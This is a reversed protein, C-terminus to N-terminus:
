DSVDASDTILGFKKAKRLLTTRHIELAQAARNMTGHRALSKSIIDREFRSVLTELSKSQELVPQLKERIYEPIDSGTIEEDPTLVMLQEITNELERINGPWNYAMLIELAESSLKKVLNHTEGFRKVFKTILPLLDSTRERLPPIYVPVVNLRYYLDERFRNEKVMAKLDKNTATIFRVSVTQVQSGGVRIFEKEQLLRLLKVQMPLTLEGIEDLFLSGGNALEVLGPKGGKKAGTFAGTEYGFLESELLNEPLAGCNIKIFPGESRPSNRHILKAIIEKGVGSEGMILVTSDVKSVRHIKQLIDKMQPSVAVIDNLKLQQSRLHQLETYYRESLDKTTELQNKLHNLETIDRVNTVVCIIKGESNFIPNGTVIVYKGTKKIEQMITAPQRKELVILTVSQNFYGAQVLDKMNRGIVESAMVGTIREYAKNVRTTNGQGDTVYIGDYSSAIIADLESSLEKVSTLERSISDLVSVDQFVGVAGVIDGNNLIPTRNTIFTRDGILMKQGVQPVGTKLVEILETNELIKKINKGLVNSKNEGLFRIAAENCITIIGDKNIAIVGNYTADLMTVLGYVSISELFESTSFLPGTM